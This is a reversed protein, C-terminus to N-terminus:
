YNNPVSAFQEQADQFSTSGEMNTIDRYKAAIMESTVEQETGFRVGKSEVIKVASYFGAGASIIDGSAECQESCPYTVLPTVLEPKLRSAM